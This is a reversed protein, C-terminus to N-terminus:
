DGIIINHECYFDATGDVCRFMRGPNDVGAFLCPKSSLQETDIKTTRGEKWSAWGPIRAQPFCWETPPKIKVTIIM